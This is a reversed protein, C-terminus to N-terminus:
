GIAATPAGAASLYGAALAEAGVPPAAAVDAYWRALAGARELISEIVPRREAEFRELTSAVRANEAAFVRVLDAADALGLWAGAAAAFHTTHLAEGVLIVRDTHWRTVTVLPILRWGSGLELLPRGGLEEAFLTEALARSGDGRQAGAPLGQLTEVATEIVFTSSSRGDPWVHGIFAGEPTSRVTRGLSPVAGGTAYWAFRNPPLEVKPDLELVHVDRVLSLGGDAGVLLDCHRFSDVNPLAVGYSLEVGLRECERQLAKVLAARRVGRWQPTAVTVADGDVGLTMRDWGAMPGDARELDELWEAGAAALSALGAAPLMVGYRHTPDPGGREVVRVAIAPDLRRFLSALYLGAPGGGVIGIQM